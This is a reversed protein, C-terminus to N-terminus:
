LLFHIVNAGGPLYGNIQRWNVNLWRWHVGNQIHQIGDIADNEYVYPVSLPNQALLEIIIM